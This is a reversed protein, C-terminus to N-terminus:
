KLKKLALKLNKSQQLYSGSALLNAGATKLKHATQDNVGGDIEINLRPYKQRLKKIKELIGTQSKQGMKGPVVNMVLITHFKKVIPEIAVIKTPPNLALGAQIKKTALFKLYQNINQHDTEWHWIIKKVNPLKSWIKLYKNVENVMLHIELQHNKTLNQIQQPTFKTKTRVFKGDMIDIQVYTFFAAIKQWQRKFQSLDVALIAPIIKTKMM